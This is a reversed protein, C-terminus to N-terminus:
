ILLVCKEPGKSVVKYPYECMEQCNGDVNLYKKKGDCPNQCYKGVVGEKEIILPAPCNKHCSQDDFLFQNESSCPNICFNAEMKSQVELPFPCRGLCSKNQEIYFQDALCPQLCRKVGYERRINFSSPCNLLCLLSGNQHNFIFHDDSKCPSLCHIGVGSETKRTMYAPCEESCSGNQLIFERTLDCMPLCYRIGNETKAKLPFRCNVLCSGNQYLYNNGSQCPNVCYSVGPDSKIVLPALCNALCSGDSYLYKSSGKCPNECLRSSLESVRRLPLPCHYICTQNWYLFNTTEVCPNDCALFGNEKNVVYPKKCEDVCTNDLRSMYQNSPCPKVCKLENGVTGMRFPWECTKICSGNGYNFYGSNCVSCEHQSPGTCKKCGWHCTSCELGNWRTDASCALCKSPKIGACHACNGPCDVCHLEQNLDQDMAQNVPCSCPMHGLFYQGEFVHCNSGLVLSSDERLHITLERFGIDLEQSDKSRLAISLVLSPDTHWDEYRFFSSNIAKETSNIKNSLPIKTPRIKEFSFKPISALKVEVDWNSEPILEGFYWFKINITIRSHPPLGNYVRQFVPYNENIFSDPELHKPGGLILEPSKHSSLHLESIKTDSLLYSINWHDAEKQFLSIDTEFLDKIEYDIKTQSNSFKPTKVMKASLTLKM